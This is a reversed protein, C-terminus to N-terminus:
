EARIQAANVGATALTETTSSRVVGTPTVSETSSITVAATVQLGVASLWCDFSSLLFSGGSRCWLWCWSLAQWTGASASTTPPMVLVAPTILHTDVTPVAATVQLSHAQDLSYGQDRIVHSIHFSPATDTGATLAPTTSPRVLVAPAIFETALPIVAATVPPLGALCHRLGTSFAICDRWTATHRAAPSVARTRDPAGATDEWEGVLPLPVIGAHLHVPGLDPAAGHHILIAVVDGVHPAVTIIVTYEM